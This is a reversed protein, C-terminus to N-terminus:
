FNRNFGGWCECSAEEQNLVRGKGRECLSRERDKREKKRKKKLNKVGRRTKGRLKIEKEGGERKSNKPKLLRTSEYLSGGWNSGGGGRPNLVNKGGGWQEKKKQCNRKGRNV